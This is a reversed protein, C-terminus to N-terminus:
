GVKTLLSWDTHAQWDLNSSITLGLLKEQEKSKLDHEGIDKLTKGKGESNHLLAAKDANNVLDVGSFFKIVKNAEHHVTSKM